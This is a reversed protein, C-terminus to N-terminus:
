GLEVAAIAPAHRVLGASVAEPHQRYWALHADRVEDAEVERGGIVWHERPAADLGWTAIVSPLRPAHVSDLLPRGPDVVADGLELREAVRTGLAMWVPNGPHNMTRMLEFGPQAFLDSVVVTGHAAERARLQGISEEAIARVQAPQADAERRRGDAAELLVRLDHYAVVPPTLSADSPPRIIVHFPYLGAFRIVPVTVVQAGPALRAALQRTGLPLARYDDRIPQSVLAATRQLWWDLHPVDDATLEHVPPIRVFPMPSGALAVRLSEAQCNGMVLGVREVEGADVAAGLPGAVDDIRYFDGYHRRRAIDNETM